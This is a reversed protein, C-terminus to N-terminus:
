AQDDTEGEEVAAVSLVGLPAQDILTAHAVAITGVLRMADDRDVYEIRGVFPEPERGPETVRSPCDTSECRWLIYSRDEDIAYTITVAANPVRTESALSRPEVSM